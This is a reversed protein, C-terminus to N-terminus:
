FKVIKFFLLMRYYQIVDFYTFAVAASILISIIWHPKYFKRIAIALYAGIGVCTIISSVEDFTESYNSGALYYFPLNIFYFDVLHWFLTFAIFHAAFAIHTTIFRQKWFFLLYFVLGYFPVFLFIFEKSETTIKENFLERYENYKLGEEALKDKVIQKTNYNTFPKFTVYNDLSLNFLTNHILFFFLINVVLFFQVPRMSRIRRGEAYDVSLQGPKTLLLKVTYFFKSDFHVFGEFTEEIFHKVSLQGPHFKKEGCNPCFNEQHTNGCSRCIM